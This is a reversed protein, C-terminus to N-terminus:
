SYAIGHHDSHQLKKQQSKATEVQADGQMDGKFIDLNSGNEESVEAPKTDINVDGDSINHKQQGRDEPLSASSQLSPKQRASGHNGIATFIWKYHM